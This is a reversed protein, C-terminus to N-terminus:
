SRAIQFDWRGGGADGERAWGPPLLGLPPRPGCERAALSYPEAACSVDGPKPIARGGRKMPNLVTLIGSTKLSNSGSQMEVLLHLLGLHILLAAGPAFRSSCLAFWFFLTPSVLQTVAKRSVPPNRKLLSRFAQHGSREEQLAPHADRVEPLRFFRNQDCCSFSFVFFYALAASTCSHWWVM